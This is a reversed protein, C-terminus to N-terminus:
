QNLVSGIMSATKAKLEAPTGCAIIKGGLHGAGPGVEIIWDCHSLVTPDHEIVIVTHEAAVLEDLLVLLRATDYLSLGTTPEDMVFLTPTSNQRRGIEKALKIRQAEGGSLSNTPQGLSVYGMGTRDLVDLMRYVVKDDEFIIKAESAPLQLLQTINLDKYRVDLIKPKYRLGRCQDCQYSVFTRGLWMRHQGSGQCHECAGNANFSFHSAKYGRKKALSQSAYCRRVRDWIGLYTAANSNSRRGIPEQSVEVVRSLKEMGLLEKFVPTPRLMQLESPPPENSTAGENKLWSRLVPVLTDAILSSKGSGSVGAVGVMMGLPITLSASKLNNTKIGNLKLKPTARNIKRREIKAPLKKRGSLYQGTISASCRLLGKYTGSFVIEGGQDGALPGIDIVHDAAAISEADHEVIVLANGQARLSRLNDLLQQKEIEHLGATPEDFIYLLSDIDASLNSMLFLRQTEGGSLTPIPRYLTLYDLKVSILQDLIDSLRKLTLEMLGTPNTAAASLQTLKRVFDDLQRITMRGLQGIHKGAIKVSRAEEGVRYAQCSECARVSIARSTDSAKRFRYTLIDFVGTRKPGDPNQGYLILNQISSSLDSFATASSFDYREQMRLQRKRFTTACDANEYFEAVTTDKRPLLVNLDLILEHGRGECHLCMGMPSNFSFHAPTSASGDSIDALRRNAADAYLTGLHNLIRTKTGVVSRPNSQRIIGQKIAVAPRLGDIQDYASEEGLNALAGIAQLYRRRGADFLIDFALTSKGSGSVGTIAVLKDLPIEVDINKLNHLKAQHIKIAKM